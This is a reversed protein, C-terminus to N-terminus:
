IITKSLFIMGFIIVLLIIIFIMLCLIMKKINVRRHPTSSKKEIEEIEEIEENEMNGGRIELIDFLSQFCLLHHTFLEYFM